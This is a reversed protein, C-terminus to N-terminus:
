DAEGGRRRTAQALAARLERLTFPKALFADFSAPKEASLDERTWGSSLLVLAQPQCRRAQQVVDAGNLTEGLLYDTCVLEFRRESALAAMGHRASMCAEVHYGLHELMAQTTLRVVDDDDVLLASARPGPGSAVGPAVGPGPVAAAPTEALAEPQSTAPLRLVFRSGVGVASRVSIEGGVNRVYSHVMALGLGHGGGGARTTFFPDFIRAQTAEDMGAGTDAVSLLVQGSDDDRRSSIEIRGGDPMADRANLVLNLLAGQLQTADGRVWRADTAIAVELTVQAPLTDRLLLALEETIAHLDLSQVELLPARTLNMLRRVQATGRQAAAQIAQLPAALEPQAGCRAALLECNGVVVALLNNFDHAIGGALEGLAALRQATVQEMQRLKIDSIDRQVGVLRTVQGSSDPVPALSMLNWFKSGDKRYCILEVTIPERRRIARRLRRLTEADTEPGRLFLPDRGLSEDFGYGTIAAFADNVFNVPNGPQSLDAICLGVQLVGAVVDEQLRHKM